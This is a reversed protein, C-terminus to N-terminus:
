LWHQLFWLCYLTWYTSQQLRGKVTEEMFKVAADWQQKDTVSRDELTNVQIVRKLLFCLIINLIEVATEWVCACFRTQNQTIRNSDINQSFSSHYLTHLIVVRKCFNECNDKFWIRKISLTSIFVYISYFITKAFLLNM